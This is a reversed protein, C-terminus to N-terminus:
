GRFAFYESKDNAAALLTNELLIAVTMPGVGGPVPTIWSVKTKALEFDIDGCLKGSTSYHMGVDIVVQGNSLWNSNILNRVGTASVILDAIKIHQDICKTLHNCITVTAGALLFELAMPRGVINSDGIIVAHKGKLNIEFYNLLRIIGYPTCPRLFPNQQALRGLNYPHFGDVDKSPDICEVIKNTSITKPLPLQVLIGDSNKNHNLDKILDLLSHESVNKPLNYAYSNFGVDVCARHKSNVYIKSAPDDGVLIVALGPQKLGKQKRSLVATKIEQKLLSAVLRGDLIAATM